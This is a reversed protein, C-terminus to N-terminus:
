QKDDGFRALEETVVELAPVVSAGETVTPTSPAVSSTPTPLPASTPAVSPEELNEEEEVREREQSAIVAAEYIKRANADEAMFGSLRSMDVM